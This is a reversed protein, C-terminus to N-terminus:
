RHHQGAHVRASPLECTSLLMSTDHIAVMVGSCISHRFSITNTIWWQGAAHFFIPMCPQVRVSRLFTLNRGNRMLSMERAGRADYYTSRPSGRMWSGGTM